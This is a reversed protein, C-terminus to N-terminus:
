LVKERITLARQFLSEAKEYSGTKSYVIALNNLSNAVEFHEPGLVKERITLEREALPLAEDFKGARDLRLIEGKLRRSEHLIRDNETAIRLEVVQIEYRGAAANKFNALVDLRYNGAEEAVWEVIEQGQLRSESDSETVQKGDAGFLRVLVDIGRQDVVLNIHQGSALMLQYLHVDVGNLERIVPKALELRRFQQNDQTPSVVGGAKLVMDPSAQFWIIPFIITLVLCPCYMNQTLSSSRRIM